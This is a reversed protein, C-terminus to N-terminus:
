VSVNDLIAFEVIRDEVPGPIIDFLDLPQLIAADPEIIWDIPAAIDDAAVAEMIIEIAKPNAWGTGRHQGVFCVNVIVQDVIHTIIANFGVPM